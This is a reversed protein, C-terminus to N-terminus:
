VLLLEQSKIHRPEPVRKLLHSIRSQLLASELLRSAKLPRLKITPRLRWRLVDCLRISECVAPM